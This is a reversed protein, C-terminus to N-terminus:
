SEGSAAAAVLIAEREVTGGKGRGAKNKREKKSTNALCLFSCVVQFGKMVGQGFGVFMTRSQQGRRGGEM